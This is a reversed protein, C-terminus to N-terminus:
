ASFTTGPAQKGTLQDLKAVLALNDKSLYEITSAQERIQQSAKNLSDTLEFVMKTLKEAGQMLERQQEETLM